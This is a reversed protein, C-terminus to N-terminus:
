DHRGLAKRGGNIRVMAERRSLGSLKEGHVQVFRTVADADTKSYERLAWGIAKRIFFDGDGSLAMCYRFLRGADTHAKYTLQHLVATRRLWLNGSESWADMESVLTPSAAVIPGVVQSALADVTDWWPKTTLLEQVLPLFSADCVRVNRIVVAIAAYQYEREDLVWLARSVDILEAQGPKALGALAKRLLEKQKPAPFGAFPFQGRMYTAMATARVPDRHEQILTILRPVLREFPAPAAM